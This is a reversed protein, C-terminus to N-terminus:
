KKAPPQPAKKAPAKPAPAPAPQGPVPPIALQVVPPEEPLDAFAEAAAEVIESVEDPDMDWIRHFYDEEVMVTSANQSDAYTTLAETKTKITEAKELETPQSPEGWSSFIEEAYPLCNCAMLHYAIGEALEPGCETTRRHQVREGWATGDQEGALKGEETGLFVRKPVGIGICLLTLQVELHPSPDSLTPALLEAKMGSVTLYKQLSNQLRWVQQKMGETDLGGAVPTESGIVLTPNSSQWYGEGSGAAIKLLDCLRNFACEMRPTGFTKSSMKGDAYHWTRTWHVEKSVLQSAAGMVAGPMEMKVIYSTPQGYRPHSPETEYEKVEIMDESHVTTWILQRPSGAPKWRGSETDYTMDIEKSLDTGDSFGLVMLGFRGIGAAIDLRKLESYLRMRKVLKIWAKEFETEVKVDENEYVDPEIQWCEQPWIEVVRRAYGERKFWEKFNLVTPALAYGAEVPINKKMGPAVMPNSNSARQFFTERSNLLIATNQEIAVIMDAVDAATNLRDVLKPLSKAM